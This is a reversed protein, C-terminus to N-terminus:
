LKVRCVHETPSEAEGPTGQRTDAGCKNPQSTLGPLALYNFYGGTFMLALPQLRFRRTTTYDGHKTSLPPRERKLRCQVPMTTLTQTKKFVLEEGKGPIVRHVGVKREGKERGEVM